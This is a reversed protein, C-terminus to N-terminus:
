SAFTASWGRHHPRPVRAEHVRDAAGCPREALTLATPRDRIGTARLRQTFAQGYVRDRNRIFYRLAQDWGSAEIIQRSVWEATPHATVNVHLLLRRQLRLVILAKPLWFKITSTM